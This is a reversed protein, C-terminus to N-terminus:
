PGGEPPLSVDETLLIIDIIGDLDLDRYMVKRVREATSIYTSSLKRGDGDLIILFTGCKAITRNAKCVTVITIVEDQLDNDFDQTGIYEWFIELSPRERSLTTTTSIESLLSDVDLSFIHLYEGNSSSIFYITTNHTFIIEDSKDGDLDGVTVSFAHTDNKSWVLDGTKADLVLIIEGYLFLGVKNTDINVTKVGFIYIKKIHHCEM